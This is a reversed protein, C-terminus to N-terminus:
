VNKKEKDTKRYEVPESMEWFSDFSSQEAEKEWKKYMKMAEGKSRFFHPGDLPDFILWFSEPEKM